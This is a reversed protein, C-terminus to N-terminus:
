AQCYGHHMASASVEVSIGSGDKRVFIREFRLRAGAKLEELRERQIEREEPLYTEALPLFQMEEMKGGWLDLGSPNATVVKGNQDILYIADPALNVLDRYREESNRREENALRSATVDMAAGVYEINDSGDKMAHALVHMYKVSGDPMLFRHEFDFNAGRLSGSHLIEQVRARDEPHIRELM